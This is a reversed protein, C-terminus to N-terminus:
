PRAGSLGPVSSFLRAPLEPELRVVGQAQCDALEGPELLLGRYTSELTGALSSEYWRRWHWGVEPGFDPNAALASGGTVVKRRFQEFNRVPFHYVSIDSTTKTRYRQPHLLQHNGMAVQPMRRSARFFVKDSYPFLFFSRDMSDKQIDLTSVPAQVHVIADEPFRELGDRFVPLVNHVKVELCEVLPFRCLETKLNGAASHWFEDADCHFIQCPGFRGLALDAMRNVWTSQAFTGLPEHLLTLVGLQEYKQLIELTGDSSGNDTAIIHDVGGALHFRLNDEVIDAEDRVLLTMILKDNQPRIKQRIWRCAVALAYKRFVRALQGM